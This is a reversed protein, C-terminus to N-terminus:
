RKRSSGLNVAFGRADFEVEVVSGDGLDFEEICSLIAFLLLAPFAIEEHAGVAFASGKCM